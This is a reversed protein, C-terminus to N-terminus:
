KKYYKILFEKNIKSVKCEFPNNNEDNKDFILSIYIKEHKDEIDYNIKKCKSLKERSINWNAFKKNELHIISPFSDLQGIGYNFISYKYFPLLVLLFLPISYVPKISKKFNFFILMFIIPGYVFFLKIASWLNSTIILYLFFIVFYVILIKLFFITSNKNKNKFISYCNLFLSKIIFINLYILIVILTLNTILNYNQSISFHYFGFISPILNLFLFNNKIELNIFIIEKILKFISVQSSWLSKITSVINPDHIPNDKGFIFAGFYGWYNPSHYLGLGVEIEKILYLFTTKYTPLTILLFLILCFFLNKFYISNYKNKYFSYFIWFVIPPMFIAAGNPYIIFFCGWLFVYKLLFIKNDNLINENFSMSYNLILILFPTALLLSFADIEFNYFFFLSLIFCYSLLYIKIKKNEFFKFLCFASLLSLISCVIKFLYGSFIIDVSDIKNLLAIILGVSPRFEILPLSRILYHKQSDDFNLNQKLVLLENLTYNLFSLGTSLYVFSDQQNGRFVYHQEGYLIIIIQFFFILLFSFYFIEKLEKLFKRYNFLCIILAISVLLLYFYFIDTINLNLNLYFYNLFIVLFGIGFIPKENQDLKTFKSILDGCLYLSLVTALSFFILM